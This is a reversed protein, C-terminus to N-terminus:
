IKSIASGPPGGVNVGNAKLTAPADLNLQKSSEIWAGKLKECKLLASIDKLMACRNTSISKLESLQEVGDLCEISKSWTLELQTVSALEGLFKCDPQKKIHWLKLRELNKLHMFASEGDLQSVDYRTYLSKLSQLHHHNLPKAAYGFYVLYQLNRMKYLADINSNKSPTLMIELYFTEPFETLWSLDLDMPQKVDDNGSYIFFNKIKNEKAFVMGEDFQSPSIWLRRSDFEPENSTFRLKDMKFDMM